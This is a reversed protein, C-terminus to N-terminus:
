RSRQALQLLTEAVKHTSADLRKDSAVVRLVPVLAQFERVQHRDVLSRLSQLESEVAEPHQDKLYVLRHGCEFTESLQEFVSTIEELDPGSPATYTLQNNLHEDTYALTRITIKEPSATPEGSEGDFFDLRQALNFTLRRTRDTAQFEITYPVGTKELSSPTSLYTAAGSSDIAVSYYSPDASWQMSTFVVTPFRRATSFQVQPNQSFLWSACMVLGANALLLWRAVARQM